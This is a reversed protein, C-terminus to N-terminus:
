RFVQRAWIPQKSSNDAAGTAAAAAGAGLGEGVGASFQMM